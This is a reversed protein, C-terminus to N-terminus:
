KPSVAVPPNRQASNRRAKGNGGQIRIEPDTVNM